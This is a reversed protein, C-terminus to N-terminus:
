LAGTHPCTLQFLTHFELVLSRRSQGPRAIGTDFKKIDFNHIHIILSQSGFDAKKSDYLFLRCDESAASPIFWGGDGALKIIKL